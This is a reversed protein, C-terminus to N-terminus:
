QRVGSVVVGRRRRFSNTRVTDQVAQTANDGDRACVDHGVDQTWNGDNDDAAAELERLYTTNVMAVIAVSLNVRLTYCNIFGFFGMLALVLRCSPFGAHRWM